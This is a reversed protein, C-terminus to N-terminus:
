RVSTARIDPMASWACPESMWEGACRQPERGAGCEVSRGFFYDGHLAGDLDVIRDGGGARRLYNWVADQACLIWVRPGGGVLAADRDARGASRQDSKTAEAAGMQLNGHGRDHGAFYRHRSLFHGVVSAGLRRERAGLWALAAVAARVRGSDGGGAPACDDFDVAGARAVPACFIGAARSRWLNYSNRGDAAENGAYGGAANRGFGAVGVEMRRTGAEGSVGFCNAPKGAAPPQDFGFDFRISQHPRRAPQDGPGGCNASYPLVRPFPQLRHGACDHQLPSVSERVHEARAQLPRRICDDSPMIGASGIKGVPWRASRGLSITRARMGYAPLIDLQVLAKLMPPGVMFFSWTLM